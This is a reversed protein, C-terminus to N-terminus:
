EIGAQQILLFYAATGKVLNSIAVRENTGHFGSLDESNVVMYQFRYSDDAIQSYHKTDTGGMTIGPVVVVDGYVQQTVRKLLAFADNEWSSVPSALSPEQDQHLKIEVREDDIVKTLHAVIDAATDRPHLRFNVTAVATPTIVNVKVGARVITPATTTRQMANGSPSKGLQSELLGGFLWKNAALMRLVFGGEKAIGDIMEEGIGDIGGSMPNQRIKVLAQALIDVAVEKEPMSSHGGPGHAVLDYNAWGKEAVNIPAMLKAIGPVVVDTVFSGEDLSWALQVGQSRLHETIGKAGLNGGVEEDHGFSLYITREPTFGQEILLTVAELMAIVGSKDDLAGRGWVYGGTVTGSFPPYSWDGESGPAIPVVDYHATLLIPKLDTNSGAWTFLMSHEAILELGLQEHVEPYTERTWAVYEAFPATEQTEPDGTSVTQIQIARSMNQVVREEDVDVSVMEPLESSAGSFSLTRVLLVAILLCLVLGLSLLIKRMQSNHIHKNSNLLSVGM